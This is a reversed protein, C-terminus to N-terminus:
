ELKNSSPFDKSINFYLESFLCLVSENIKPSDPHLFSFSYLLARQGSPGFSMGLPRITPSPRPCTGVGACPCFQGLALALPIPQTQQLGRKELLWSEIHSFVSLYQNTWIGKLQCCRFHFDVLSACVKQLNLKQFRIIVSSQSVM